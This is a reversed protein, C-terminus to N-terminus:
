PMSSFSIPADLIVLARFLKEPFPLFRTVGVACLYAVYEKLVEKIKGTLIATKSSDTNM